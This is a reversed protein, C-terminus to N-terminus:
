FRCKCSVLKHCLDTFDAALLGLEAVVDRMRMVDGPTAPVDVKLGYLRLDIRRVLPNANARSADLGAFHDFGLKTRPINENYRFFIDRKETAEM